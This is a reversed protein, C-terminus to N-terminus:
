VHPAGLLPQLEKSLDTVSQLVADTNIRAAESGIASLADMNLPLDIGDLLQDVEAVEGILATQPGSADLRVSLEAQLSM